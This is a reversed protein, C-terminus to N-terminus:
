RWSRAFRPTCRRPVTKVGLVRAAGDALETDLRLSTITLAM